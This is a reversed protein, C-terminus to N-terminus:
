LGLSWRIRQFFDPPQDKCRPCRPPVEEGEKVIVGFGCIDCKYARVSAARKIEGDWMAVEREFKDLRLVDPEPKEKERALRLQALGRREELRRKYDFPSYEKLM